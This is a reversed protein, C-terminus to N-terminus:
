TIFLHEFLIKTGMFILTLGALWEIKSGFIDGVKCGILTGALSMFFTILGIIVALHFIAVKLFSLSIGVAAADISTAIALVILTPLQYINQRISSVKETKSHSDYIIKGGIGALLVFAVWHDFSKVFELALSGLYWGGVPMIAQFVGFLAAMKLARLFYLRRMLVGSSLSVAFADLAVAFGIICLAFM